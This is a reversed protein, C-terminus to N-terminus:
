LSGDGLPPHMSTDPESSQLEEKLPLNRLEDREAELARIKKQAQRLQINRKLLELGALLLTIIVGIGFAAAVVFVVPVDYEVGPWLSVTTVTQSNLWAFFLVPLFIGLLVLLEFVRRM